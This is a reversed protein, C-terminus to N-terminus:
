LPEPRPDDNASVQLDGRLLQRGLLKVVPVMHLPDVDSDGTLMCSGEGKWVEGNMVVWQTEPPRPWPHHQM